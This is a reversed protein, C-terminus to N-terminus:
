KSAPSWSFSIRISRSSKKASIPWAPCACKAARMYSAVLVCAKTAKFRPMPRELFYGQAGNIGFSKLM